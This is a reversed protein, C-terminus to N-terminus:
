CSSSQQSGGESAAEGVRKQPEGEPGGGGPGAPPAPTWAVWPEPACLGVQGEQSVRQAQMFPISSLPEHQTM